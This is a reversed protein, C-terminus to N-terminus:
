NHTAASIRGTHCGQDDIRDSENKKEGHAAYEVKQFTSGFRAINQLPEIVGANPSENGSGERGNVDYKKPSSM